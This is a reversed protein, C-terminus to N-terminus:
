TAKAKNKALWLNILEVFLAFGMAIFLYGSDVSVTLGELILKVGVLLLICLALIKIRANNLIFRAIPESALIMALVAIIIALAMVEYQRVIGVASIVSDLSFLIDFFMIQLIAKWFNSAKKETAVVRPKRSELLEHSAKILLFLGGALLVINRISIPYYGIMFLPKTANALWFIGALLLLRMLMASLLGIRRAMKQQSVHLKSTIITIFVLNDVGLIIEITTLALLSIWTHALLFIEM